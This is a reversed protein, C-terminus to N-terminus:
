PRDLRPLRHHEVEERAVPFRRAERVHRPREDGAGRRFGLETLEVAEGSLRELQADEMGGVKPLQTVREPWNSFRDTGVLRDSGRTGTLDCGGTDDNRITAAGRGDSITANAPNSLDVFFTEDPEVSQDGVVNM